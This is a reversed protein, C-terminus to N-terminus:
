FNGYNVLTLNQKQQAFSMMKSFNNPSIGPSEPTETMNINLGTTETDIVILREESSPIVSLLDKRVNKM